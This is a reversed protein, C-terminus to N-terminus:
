ALGEAGRAHSKELLQTATDDCPRRTEPAATYDAIREPRFHGLGRLRRDNVMYVAQLEGGLSREEKVLGVLCSVSLSRRNM